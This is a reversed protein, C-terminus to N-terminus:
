LIYFETVTEKELGYMTASFNPRGSVKSSALFPSSLADPCLVSCLLTVSNVKSPPPSLFFPFSFFALFFNTQHLGGRHGSASSQKKIKKCVRLSIKKFDLYADPRFVLKNKEKKCYYTCPTV